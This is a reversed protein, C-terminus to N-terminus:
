WRRFERSEVSHDEVSDDFRNNWRIQQHQQVPRATVPSPRSWARNNNNNTVTHPNNNNIISQRQYRPVASPRRYFSSEISDDEISGWNNNNNNNSRPVHSNIQNNNNATWPNSIPKYQTSAHISNSQMPRYRNVPMSNRYYYNNQALAGNDMLMVAAVVCSLLAFSYSSM